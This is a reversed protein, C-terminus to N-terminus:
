EEAFYTHRVEATPYDEASETPAEPELIEGPRHHTSLDDVECEVGELEIWRDVVAAAEEESECLQRHVLEGLRFVRVEVTPSEGLESPLVDSM